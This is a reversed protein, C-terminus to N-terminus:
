LITIIYNYIYVLMNIVSVVRQFYTILSWWGILAVLQLIQIVLLVEAWMISHVSSM